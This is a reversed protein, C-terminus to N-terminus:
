LMPQRDVIYIVPGGEISVTRYSDKPFTVIEYVPSGLVDHPATPNEAIIVLVDSSGFDELPVPPHDSAVLFYRYNLGRYDKVESLTTLAYTTEPPIEQLITNAVNQMDDITWGLKNLYSMQAPRVQLWSIYICVISGIVVGFWRLNKVLSYIVMGSIYYSIPYLYTLYHHHLTGKFAALGSISTVLFLIVIWYGAHYKSRRYWPWALVLLLIYIWLLFTNLQRYWQTWEAGWIEFLVHMSRGHHERIFSSVRALLQPQATSTDGNFYDVFGKYIVHDFRFDFVVLPLISILFLGLSAFLTKALIFLRQKDTRRYSRVLDVMWLLGFPAASLLAVYHLQIMILWGVAVGVWWWASGKWARWGAYLMGLTVIPAPNPNWSFRTYVLVYPAFTYLLVAIFAATPGILRKGVIYMLPLTLIGLFAVAYAPGLPSYGSLLLWPAMFYYYLPGLYMNGVSTSPGVFAIDGHLIGNAIIADRGQDALFQLSEPLYALRYAGGIITAIGIGLIQWKKLSSLQRWWSCYRGWM